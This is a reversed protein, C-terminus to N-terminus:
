RREWGLTRLSGLVAPYGSSDGALWPPQGTFVPRGAATGDHNLARYHVLIAPYLLPGLKQLAGQESGDYLLAHNADVSDLLWKALRKTDADGRRFHWLAGQEQYEEVAKLRKVFGGSPLRALGFLVHGVLLAAVLASPVGSRTALGYLLGTLRSKPHDAAPPM